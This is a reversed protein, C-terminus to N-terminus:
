SVAVTAVLPLSEVYRVLVPNQGDGNGVSELVFDDAAQHVFYGSQGNAEALNAASFGLGRRLQMPRNLLNTM